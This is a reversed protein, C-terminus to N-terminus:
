SQSPLAPRSLLAHRSLSTTAFVTTSPAPPRRGAHERAGAGLLRDKGGHNLAKKVYPYFVFDIFDKLCRHSTNCVTQLSEKIV